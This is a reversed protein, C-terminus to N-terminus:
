EGFFELIAPLAAPPYQHEDDSSDLLYSARGGAGVGSTLAAVVPAYQQGAVGFFCCTDFQNHVQLRRRHANDFSGLLYLSLYDGAVAVFPAWHQEHDGYGGPFCTSEAFWRPYSGAMEVTRQIRPDIAAAVTTTWGGGSLGTMHVARFGGDGLAYNVAAVVPRLFYDLTSQESTEYGSDMPTHLAFGTNPDFPAENPGYGPMFGVLVPIRRALLAAAMRDVGGVVLSDDHGQYVIALTSRPRQPVYLYSRSVFDGQTLTWADIRAVNAPTTWDLAEEVDTTITPVDSPLEDRKFIYQLLARRKKGLEAATREPIQAAIEEDTFTWDPKTEECCGDGAEGFLVESYCVKTDPILHFAHATTACLAVLALLAKM